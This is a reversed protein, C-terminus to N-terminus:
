SGSLQLGRELIFLGLLKNWGQHLLSFPSLQWLFPYSFFQQVMLSNKYVLHPSAHHKSDKFCLTCGAVVSKWLDESLPWSFYGVLASIPLSVKLCEPTVSICPLPGWVETSPASHQSLGAGSLYLTCSRMCESPLFPSGLCTRYTRQAM